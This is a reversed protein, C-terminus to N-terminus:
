EDELEGNIIKFVRHMAKAMDKDKFYGKTFKCNKTEIWIAWKETKDDWSCSVLEIRDIPLYCEDWMVDQVVIFRSM